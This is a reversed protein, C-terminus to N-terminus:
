KKLRRKIYIVIEIFGLLIFYLGAFISFSIVLDERIDVKLFEVLEKNTM